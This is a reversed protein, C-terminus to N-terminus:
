IRAENKLIEVMEKYAEEDILFFIHKDRLSIIYTTNNQVRKELSVIDSIRCTVTRKIGEDENSMFQIVTNSINSINSM